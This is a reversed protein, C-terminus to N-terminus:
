SAPPAARREELVQYADFRAPPRTQWTHTVDRLWQKHCNGLRRGSGCPCRRSLKGPHKVAGLLRQLAVPDLAATTQEIWERHGDNGHGWADGPWYPEVGHKRRVEYMLQLYIFEQVRCLYLALGGAARFARTPAAEPVWLCFRGDSEVHRDPDPPFQGMPDYTDPLERPQLGPYRIEVEFDDRRGDHRAVAVTGVIRAQRANSGIKLQLGAATAALVAQDSEWRGRARDNLGSAM